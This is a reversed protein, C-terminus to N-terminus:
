VKQSEALKEIDSYHVLKRADSPGMMIGAKEGLEVMLTLLGVSDFTEITDLKTEPTLQGPEISLVDAVIQRLESRKM